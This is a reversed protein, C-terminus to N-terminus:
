CHGCSAPFLSHSKPFLAEQEAALNNLFVAAPFEVKQGLIDFKRNDVCDLSFTDTIAAFCNQVIFLWCGETLGPCLTQTPGFSKILNDPFISSRQNGFQDFILTMWKGAIIHEHGNCWCGQYRQATQNQVNYEQDNCDNLWMIQTICNRHCGLRNQERKYVEIDDQKCHTSQSGNCFPVLDFGGCCLFNEIGKGERDKNKGVNRNRNYRQKFIYLPCRNYM